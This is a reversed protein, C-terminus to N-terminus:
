SICRLIILNEKCFKRFISQEKGCMGGYCNFYKNRRKQAYRRVIEFLNQNDNSEKEDVTLCIMSMLRKSADQNIFNIFITVRMDFCAKFIQARSFRLGVKFIKTSSSSVPGASLGSTLNSVKNFTM